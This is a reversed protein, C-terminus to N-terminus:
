QAPLYIQNDTLKFSPFIDATLDSNSFFIETPFDIIKFFDLDVSQLSSCNNNDNPEREKEQRTMDSTILERM